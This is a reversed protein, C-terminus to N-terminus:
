NYDQFAATFVNVNTKFGAEKFIRRLGELAEKAVTLDRYSDLIDDMLSSQDITEAAIPCDKELEEAVSKLVFVAVSPSGTNGFLHVRFEFIRLRGESRWLFRHFKTSQEDMRVNLFMDQIDTGLCVGGRRFRML